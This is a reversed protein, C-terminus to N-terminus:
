QATTQCRYPCERKGTQNFWDDICEPHFGHHCPLWTLSAKDQLDFAELCVACETQSNQIRRRAEREREKSDFVPASPQPYDPYRTNREAEAPPASPKPGTNSRRPVNVLRGIEGLVQTTIRSKKIDGNAYKMKGSFYDNHAPANGYWKGTFKTRGYIDGAPFTLTGTGYFAGNNWLGGM